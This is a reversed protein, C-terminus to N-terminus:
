RAFSNKMISRSDWRSGPQFSKSVIKYRAILANERCLKIYAGERQDIASYASKGERHSIVISKFQELNPITKTCLLGHVVSFGSKQLAERASISDIFHRESPIWVDYALFVDPLANYKISHCAFLWEGYVVVREGLLQALSEFLAKRQYMWTWLSSFQMKAPTKASFSKRLFHNRNRAIPQDQEDFAVGLNAGDVKEEIQLSDCSSLAQKIEDESAILDDRSTNAEWPLHKTRPFDFIEVKTVASM